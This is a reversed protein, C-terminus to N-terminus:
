NFQRLISACAAGDRIVSDIPAYKWGGYRGIGFIARSELYSLVLKRSKEYEADYIPYGFPLNFHGMALVDEESRILGQERLHRLAVSPTNEIIPSTKTYTIELSLVQCDTPALCPSLNSLIGVRHFVTNESPYYIWHASTRSNGRIGLVLDYVSTWQLRRGAESVESPLDGIMSLLTPLPISTVLHSWSSKEGDNFVAEKNELTLSVLTKKRPRWKPELARVFADSLSGMGHRPYYYGERLDAYRFDQGHVIKEVEAPTPRPIFFDAWASSIDRLPVKWLKNSYPIYFHEALYDGFSDKLWTDYSTDGVQSNRKKLTAQLDM